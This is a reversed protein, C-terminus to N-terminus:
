FEILDMLFTEPYTVTEVLSAATKLGWVCQPMKTIQFACKSPKRNVWPLKVSHYMQPHPPPCCCAAQKCLGQLFSCSVECVQRLSLFFCPFFANLFFFFFDPCLMSKKSKEPFENIWQCLLLWRPIDSSHVTGVESVLQTGWFEM